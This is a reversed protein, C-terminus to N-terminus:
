VRKSRSRFYLVLAVIIGFAIFAGLLQGFKESADSQPYAAQQDFKFSDIINRFETEHSPYNAALDYCWVQVEVNRGFHSSTMSKRLGIGPIEAEGTIVFSKNQTDLESASLNAKRLVERDEPSARSPQTTAANNVQSVMQRMDKETPVRGSPYPVVQVVILPHAFPQEGKHQFASDATRKKEAVGRIMRPAMEQLKDNPIQEWNDPLAISFGENSHHTIAANLNSGAALLVISVFAFRFGNM